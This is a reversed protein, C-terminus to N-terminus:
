PGTAERMGAALEQALQWVAMSYLPSRNYRSIVWFNRHTVWYESGAAGELRLLTAAREPDDEGEIAYGWADLQGVSYVPEHDVPAVPRAGQAVRAQRAVPAGSEWGHAVFYNAVSAIVDPRSAWLDIRPDDDYSRAYGAISSPMFQGWGMAGAYSGMVEDLAYPFADGQLLFLQALEKRFFEARPPYYFALTALADLVRYRGTIRGYSTEVGIIAVIIEPPVGFEASVRELLAANERWFVLGQEARQPTLFIPRYDRWPKTKEAPRSIADIVSQQYKAQALVAEIAAADLGPRAAQRAVEVAFARQGPHAEGSAATAAVAGRMAVLALALACACRLIKPM